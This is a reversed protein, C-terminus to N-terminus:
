RVTMQAPKKKLLCTLCIGRMQGLFNMMRKRAPPTQAEADLKRHRLHPKARTQFRQQRGHMPMSGGQNRYILAIRQGREFGQEL